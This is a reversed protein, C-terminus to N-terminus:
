PKRRANVYIESGMGPLHRTMAYLGDLMLDTLIGQEQLAAMQAHTFPKLLFSGSEVVNFGARDLLASLSDVDYTSSQQMRKQTSSLEHTSAILGMELALLRHFSGANPVNVHLTTTTSSLALAAALLEGPESIEHLLSSIVICDFSQAALTPAVKQLTGLHVSVNNRGKAKDLANAHFRAAPEVVHMTGPLDYDLFLPLLGCGVELVSAPKLRALVELVKRRRYRLQISEFPLAEYDDQYRELDRM